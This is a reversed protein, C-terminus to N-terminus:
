SVPTLPNKGRLVAIINEAAMVAMETRAEETASAIHPTLVVNNLEKLGPAAEPENEFVDLAAGKIVGTKLAEVLASEDVVPGRATNILYSTPKMLRLREANILHRTQPLLPVHISVCDAEALVDEMRPKYVAQYSQEFETNPKLDHYIVRMDFGRVAYHALRSGIRGVGLIGLIKGTLASGLLLMPEWGKYKGARFFADAEVIRHALALMLSFTHEAVADTLVGPTNTVAVGRSKAAELDINDYGVAMNAVIKLQPGAADLVEADIRETLMCLLADIGKVSGLLEERTIIQDKPYVRVDHGAERLVAISKDPIQRTIFISAMM